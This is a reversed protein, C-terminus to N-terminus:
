NSLYFALDAIEPLELGYGHDGRCRSPDSTPVPAPVARTQYM